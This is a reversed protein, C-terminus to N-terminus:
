MYSNLFTQFTVLIAYPIDRISKIIWCFLLLIANDNFRPRNMFPNVGQTPRNNLPPFKKVHTFHNSHVFYSHKKSTFYHGLEITNQQSFFERSSQDGSVNAPIFNGVRNFIDNRFGYFESFRLRIRPKKEHNKWRFFIGPPLIYRFKEFCFM